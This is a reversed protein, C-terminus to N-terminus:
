DLLVPSVRGDPGDLRDLLERIDLQGLLHLLALFDLLDLLDLRDLTVLQDPIEKLVRHVGQSIPPVRLLGKEQSM